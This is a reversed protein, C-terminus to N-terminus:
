SELILSFIKLPLVLSTMPIYNFILYFFLCPLIMLYLIKHEWIRQLLSKQHTHHVQHRKNNPKM